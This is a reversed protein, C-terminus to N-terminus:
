WATEMKWGWEELIVVGLRLSGLWCAPTKGGGPDRDSIGVAHDGVLCCSLVSHSLGYSYLSSFDVYVGEGYQGQGVGGERWPRGRKVLHFPKWLSDPSHQPFEFSSGRM